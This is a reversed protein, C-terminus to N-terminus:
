CGCGFVVGRSVQGSHVTPQNALIHMKTKPFWGVYVFSWVWFDDEGELFLPNRVKAVKAIREKVLFRWDM